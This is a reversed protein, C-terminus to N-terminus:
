QFATREETSGMFGMGVSHLVALYYHVGCCSGALAHGKSQTYVHPHQAHM